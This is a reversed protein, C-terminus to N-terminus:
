TTKDSALLADYSAASFGAAVIEGVELVPRKLLTPQDRMLTMARSQTLEARDIEPIKRWTLSRTNLLTQWDLALTWRELMELELGDARLDHFRHEIDNDTLWRRAKRCTDCNPIGYITLVKL